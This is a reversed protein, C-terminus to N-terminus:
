KTPPKMRPHKDILTEPTMTPVVRETADLINVFASHMLVVSSPLREILLSYLRVPHHEVDGIGDRDLDYGNYSSYYNSDFYNRSEKSNTTVDFTNSNFTNDVVSNDGCNALMRLAYGNSTFTNNSFLIRNAAESHVGVSNRLFTNGSIHSDTIDKLLLGYTSSGWNDVFTNNLMEVYKSYMVAVGAGNRTFTNERYSCSDSFMYHLGYRLNDKCENQTVTVHSMFELYVGDRHGDITNGQILIDKGTWCHVGNGSNSERRRTGFMQNNLVKCREAGVLYIAFFANRTICNKIVVKRAKNVKIAANDDTYSVRVNHFEIGDVTTSDADITLISLGKGDADIVVTGQAIMTLPKTIRLNTDRYTGERIVLTDFRACADISEQLSRASNTSHVRTSANSDVSTGLLAALLLLIVM